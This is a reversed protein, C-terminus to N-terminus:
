PKGNGLQISAILLLDIIKVGEEGAIAVFITRGGKPHFWLFEPHPVHVENGDAIQLTFPKFPTAQQVERLQEITM